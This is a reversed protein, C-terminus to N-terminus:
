KDLFRQPPTFGLSLGSDRRGVSHWKQCTFSKRKKEWKKTHIPDIIYPTQVLIVVLGKWIPKHYYPCFRLGGYRSPMWGSLCQVVNGAGRRVKKLKPAPDRDSFQGSNHTEQRRPGNFWSSFSDRPGVSSGWSTGIKEEVKEYFTQTCCGKANWMWFVGSHCLEFISVTWIVLWWTGLVWRSVQVIWNYLSQIVRWTCLCFGVLGM